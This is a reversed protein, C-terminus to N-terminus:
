PSFGGERRLEVEETEVFASGGGEEWTKKFAPDKLYREQILKKCEKSDLAAIREAERQVRDENPKIGYVRASAILARKFLEADFKGGAMDGRM